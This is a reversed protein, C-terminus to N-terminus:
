LWRVLEALPPFFIWVLLLSPSVKNIRSLGDIPEMRKVDKLCTEACFRSQSSFCRMVCCWSTIFILSTIIGPIWIACALHAWRGDTTPKMAGGLALKVHWLYIIWKAIFRRLDTGTVPCLCCKPSIRPAGPRCLNCLWLGGDLQKLEGYCRAHVQFM